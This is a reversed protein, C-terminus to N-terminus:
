YFVILKITIVIFVIRKYKILKNRTAARSKNDEVEKKSLGIRNLIINFVICGLIELACILLFVNLSMTKGGKSM